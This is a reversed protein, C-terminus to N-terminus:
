YRQSQPLKIIFQCGSNGINEAMITGHYKTIIGYSVSLGLGLNNGQGKKTSYFPLFINNPNGEDCIGPGTDRFTMQVFNTDQEYVIATDIFIEGGSPMAEFSNKLLNLIVQKIENKNGKIFLEEEHHEFRILIERDRTSHRILNLMNQILTNLDIEENILQKNDSFSHLNSVINSILGMEEHIDDIAEQLETNHIHYKLYTLSNYVIELPTNIEHAVGAALLGVSALKESLMVQKQLQDYETVDEIIIINGIVVTGDFIPFTKVNSITHIANLTIPVQYFTKEERLSSATDILRLIDENRSSVLQNLPRNFFPLRKLGFYRKCSDNIMKIRNEDDTVILNVPLNRLIAENYKLFQYFEQNFNEVHEEEAIQTYTMKILNIKAISKVYDTVLLEGSKMISVKDAVTYIDDINRTIFLVSLGTERGRKLISLLKKLPETPLRELVEDLILLRPQRYIQKLIDVLLQDDPPLNKLLAAPDIDVHYEGLLAQTARLMRKRNNWGFWKNIASDTFFLNEAVSFNENLSKRQYVVEIGLAHATKRTLFAYTKGDIVIGGSQPKSSGSLVMGLSSKGAGHEGVIAHVEARGIQININKLARFHGYYLTIDQLEVFADSNNPHPSEM